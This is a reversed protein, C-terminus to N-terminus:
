TTRLAVTLSLWSPYAAAMTSSNSAEIPQQTVSSSTTAFISEASVDASM